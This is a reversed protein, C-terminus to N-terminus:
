PPPRSAPRGNGLWKVSEKYLEFCDTNAKKRDSDAKMKELFATNYAVLEEDEKRRAREEERQRLYALSMKVKARKVETKNITTLLDDAQVADGINVM